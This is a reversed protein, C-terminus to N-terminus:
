SAPPTVDTKGSSFFLYHDKNSITILVTMCEFHAEAQNATYLGIFRDGVLASGCYKYGEPPTLATDQVEVLPM